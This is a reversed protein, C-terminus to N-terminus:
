KPHALKEKLERIYAELTAKSHSVKILEEADSLQAKLDGQQRDVRLLEGLIEEYDGPDPKDGAADQKLWKDRALSFINRGVRAEKKNYFYVRGLELLIEYSDPNARLGQRLFQEAQDPNHLSTRLWYAATVYTDIRKPDMDASLKLWPLIERENGNSLHTHVTPFFHRGFREIWDNPPRLFTEEHHEDHGDADQHEHAEETLHSHEEAKATDFMTPYFGSHFYADAVAFFHNAFMRRSDGMLATLMGASTDTKARLRSFPADLITALTFCCVLLFIVSLRIM